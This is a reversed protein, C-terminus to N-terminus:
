NKSKLVFLCDFLCVHYPLFLFEVRVKSAFDCPLAFFPLLGIRVKSFFNFPLCFTLVLNKSKLFLVFCVLCVFLCAYLAIFCTLAFDVSGCYYTDCVIDFCIVCNKCLMILLSYWRFLIVCWM